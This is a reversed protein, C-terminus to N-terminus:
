PLPPLEIYHTPNIIHCGPLATIWYGGEGDYSGVCEDFVPDLLWLKKDKPASEIPQWQNLEQCKDLLQYLLSEQVELWQPVDEFESKAHIIRGLELELIEECIGRM